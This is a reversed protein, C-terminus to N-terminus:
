IDFVEHEGMCITNYDLHHVSSPLIYFISCMSNLSSLKCSSCSSPISVTAQSTVDGALTSAHLAATMLAAPATCTNILLAPVVAARFGAHMKEGQMGLLKGQRRTCSSLLLRSTATCSHLCNTRDNLLRKLVESHDLVGVASARDSHNLCKGRCHDLLCAM